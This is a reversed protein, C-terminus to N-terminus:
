IYVTMKLGSEALIQRLSTITEEKINHKIKQGSM